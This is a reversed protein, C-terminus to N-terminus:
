LGIPDVPGIGGGMALSNRIAETVFEKGKRVADLLDNGRALNAAIAASLVCGTGHTNPTDIREAEIWELRSEDVFLDTAADGELHGGKVLVANAGLLMIAGAAEEMAERSDVAIGALGAAEHLNPTVLAALPVIERRLSEVADERLLPHGHKSVFVPDVVLNPLRTEHVADAVAGVIAASALM